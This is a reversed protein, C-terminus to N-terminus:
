INSKSQESSREWAETHVLIVTRDSSVEVSKGARAASMTSLHLSMCGLLTFSYVQHQHQQNFCHELAYVSGVDKNEMRLHRKHLLQQLLQQRALMGVLLQLLLTLTVHFSQRWVSTPLKPGTPDTAVTALPLM